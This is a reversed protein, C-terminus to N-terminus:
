GCICNGGQNKARYLMKEANKILAELDLHQEQDYSAFGISISVNDESSLQWQYREIKEKLQQAIDMAQKKDSEPLFIIFEEASFRGFIDIRKLLKKGLM